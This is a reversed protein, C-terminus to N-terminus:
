SIDFTIQLFERIMKEDIVYVETCNEESYFGEAIYMMKEINDDKIVGADILGDSIPKVAKNDIDYFKHSAKVRVYICVKNTFINKYQRCVRALNSKLRDNTWCDLGKIFPVVEPIYIYLYNNIQKAYYEDNITTLKETDACCNMEKVIKMESLYKYRFKEIAKAVDQYYEDSVDEGNGIVRILDNAYPVIDKLNEKIVQM